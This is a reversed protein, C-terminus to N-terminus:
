INTGFENVDLSFSEDDTVVLRGERSMKYAVKDLNASEPIVNIINGEGILSFLRVRLGPRKVLSGANADFVFTYGAVRALFESVQKVEGVFHRRLDTDFRRRVILHIKEGIQLVM